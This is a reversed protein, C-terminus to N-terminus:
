ETPPGASDADIYPQGVYAELAPDESELEEEVEGVVGTMEGLTVQWPEAGESRVVLIDGELLVADEGLLEAAPASVAVECGFFPSPDAVVESTEDKGEFGAYDPCEQGTTGIGEPDDDGANQIVLFAVIAAAALALLLWLWWLPKKRRDRDDDAISVSGIPRQDSM